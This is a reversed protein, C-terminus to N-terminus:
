FDLRVTLYYSCASYAERLEWDFNGILTLNGTNLYSMESGILFGSRSPDAGETRFSPGGGAFTANASYRSSIYDYLWAGRISPIFTGRKETLFPYALKVGLGQQLQSFGEGEVSLNLSDAGTETYSNMYLYNYGLSTFPTVELAKTKEFMFNYGGEYKTSYQQGNYDGKATRGESGLTIGRSSDYSNQAFSLM